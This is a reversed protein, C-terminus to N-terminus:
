PSVMLVALRFGVPDGPKEAPLTEIQVTHEGACDCCLWSVPTWWWRVGKAYGSPREKLEVGDVTVKVRGMGDPLNGKRYLFAATSGTFSFAVRDGANTSMLGTGWGARKEKYPFFGRNETLM